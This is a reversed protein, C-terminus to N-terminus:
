GTKARKTFIAFLKTPQEGARKAPGRPTAATAMVAEARAAIEQEETSVLAASGDGVENPGPTPEDGGPPPQSRDNSPFLPYYAHEPDSMAALAKRHCEEKLEPKFPALLGCADWGRVVMAPQDAVVQFGTHLFDLTHPKITSLKFDCAKSWNGASQVNDPEESMLKVPAVNHQV